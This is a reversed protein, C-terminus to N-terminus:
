RNDTAYDNSPNGRKDEYIKVESQQTRTIRGSKFHINFDGYFRQERLKAVAKLLEQDTM